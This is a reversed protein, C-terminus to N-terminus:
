NARWRACFRCTAPQIPRRHPLSASRACWFVASARQRRVKGEDTDVRMAESSPDIYILVHPERLEITLKGENVHSYFINQINNELKFKDRVKSKVNTGFWLLVHDYDDRMLGCIKNKKRSRAKRKKTTADYVYELSFDCLFTAM